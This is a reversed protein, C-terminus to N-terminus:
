HAISLTSGIAVEDDVRGPNGMLTLNAASSVDVTATGSAYFVAQSASSAEIEADVCVLDRANVWSASSVSADVIACEGSVFVRGGSSSSIAVRGAVVGDVILIAASSADIVVTDGALGTANVRTASGAALNDLAPVRVTVTVRGDHLSVVDWFDRDIWVRLKGDVVEYRVDDLDKSNPAEISVAQPGGVVVNVILASNFEAATFAPVEIFRSDARVGTSLALVAISVTAVAAVRLM